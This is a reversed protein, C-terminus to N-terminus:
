TPLHQLTLARVSAFQKALTRTVLHRTWLTIMSRSPMSNCDRNGDGPEMESREYTTRKVNCSFRAMHADRRAHVRMVRQRSSHLLSLPHATSALTSERREEHINSLSLLIYWCARVALRAKSIWERPELRAYHVPSKIAACRRRCRMAIIANAVDTPRVPSLSRPSQHAWFRVDYVHHLDYKPSTVASIFSAPPKFLM